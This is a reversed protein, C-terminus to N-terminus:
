STEPAKLRLATQKRAFYGPNINFTYTGEEIKPESMLWQRERAITWTTDLILKIAGTTIDSKKKGADKRKTLHAEIREKLNGLHTNLNEKTLHQVNGKYGDKTEFNGKDTYIQKLTLLFKLPIDIFGNLSYNKFRLESGALREWIEEIFDIEEVNISIYDKFVSNLINTDILLILDTRGSTTVIERYDYIKLAETVIGAPTIMPFSIADKNKYLWQLFRKKAKTTYQGTTKDPKIFFRFFAKDAKTHIIFRGQGQEQLVQVDENEEKYNKIAQAYGFVKIWNGLDEGKLNMYWNEVNNLHQELTQGTRLLKVSLLQPYDKKIREINGFNLAFEKKLEINKSPKFVPFLEPQITEPLVNNFTQGPSDLIFKALDALINTSKTIITDLPSTNLDILDNKKLLGYRIAIESYNKYNEKVLWTYIELDKPKWQDYPKWSGPREKYEKELQLYLEASHLIEGENEWLKKDSMRRTSNM